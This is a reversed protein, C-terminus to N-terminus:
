DLDTYPSGDTARHGLLDVITGMIGNMVAAAVPSLPTSKLQLGCIPM